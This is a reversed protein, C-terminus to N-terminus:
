ALGPSAAIVSFVNNRPLETTSCAATLRETTPELGVRPALFIKEVDERKEM